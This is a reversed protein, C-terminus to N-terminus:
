ADDAIGSVELPNITFSKQIAAVTEDTLILRPLPSQDSALSDLEQVLNSLKGAASSQNHRPSLHNTM